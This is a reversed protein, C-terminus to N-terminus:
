LQKSPLPGTLDYLYVAAGVTNFSDLKKGISDLHYLYLREQDVGNGRYVHSFVLWVRPHGRLKDLDAIYKRWNDRSWIGVIYDNDTFGYKNQYYKFSYYAMCYLYIVDKDQRHDKLYSIAPRIEEKTRPEKLYYTADIVRPFFLLAVVTIWIIPAHRTKDRIENLGDAIVILVAPGVFLLLRGSFPYRDFGSALLAFVIPSLLIFFKGNRQQLASVCAVIFPLAAIAASL